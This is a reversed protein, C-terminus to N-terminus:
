LDGRMRLFSAVAELIGEFEKFDNPIRWIRRRIKFHFVRLEKSEKLCKSFLICFEGSLFSVLPGDSGKEYKRM